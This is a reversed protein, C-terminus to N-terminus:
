IKPISLRNCAVDIILQLMESYSLGKARGIVDFSGGQFLAPLPNVEIFYIENQDTLRFDFRALDKCGIAHFLKSVIEQFEEKLEPSLELNINNYDGYLKYSLNLWFSNDRQLDIGTIGFLEFKENGVVPVTIETGFIFEECLIDTKFQNLLDLIEEVTDDSFDEFKKIGSSNGELNPKAIIPYRLNKIQNKINEENVLNERYEILCYNPTKIGLRIALLKTLYKNLTLSLGFADTGIYPVKYAELISPILGERNRSFVGEATNYIIDCGNKDTELFKILSDINGILKVEHGISELERKLNQISVEEAFDHHGKIDQYMDETDYTIGVRM